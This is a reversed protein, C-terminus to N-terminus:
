SSVGWVERLILVYSVSILVSDSGVVTTGVVLSYISNSRTDGCALEVVVLHECPPHPILQPGCCSLSTVTCTVPPTTTAGPVAAALVLRALTPGALIASCPLSLHQDCAMTLLVGSGTTSFSHIFFMQAVCGGSSIKHSCFCFISLLKPLTSTTLLLDTAVLMSLLFCLPLGPDMRPVLLLPSNGLVAMPCMIWFQAGELGPIGTPISSSPNSYSM